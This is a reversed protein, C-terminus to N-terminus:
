ELLENDGDDDNLYNTNWHPLTSGVGAYILTTLTPIALINNQERLHKLSTDNSLKKIGELRLLKSLFAGGGAEITM